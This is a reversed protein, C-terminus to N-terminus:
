IPAVVAGAPHWAAGKGLFVSARLAFHPTYHGFGFQNRVLYPGVDDHTYLGSILFGESHRGSDPSADVPVTDVNHDQIM